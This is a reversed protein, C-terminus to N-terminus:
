CNHKKQQNLADCRWSVNRKGEDRTSCRARIRGQSHIAKMRTGADREATDDVWVAECQACFTENGQAFKKMCSAQLSKWGDLESQLM